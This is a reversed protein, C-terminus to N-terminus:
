TEGDLKRTWVCGAGTFRFLHFNLADLFVLGDEMEIEWGPFVQNFCIIDLPADNRVPLRIIHGRYAWRPPVLLGLIKRGNMSM